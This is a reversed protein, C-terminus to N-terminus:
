GPVILPDRGNPSLAASGDHGVFVEDGVVSERLARVRMTSAIPLLQRFARDIRTAKREEIGLGISGSIIEKLSFPM